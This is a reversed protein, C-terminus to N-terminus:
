PRIGNQEHDGSLRADLGEGHEKFHGTATDEREEDDSM